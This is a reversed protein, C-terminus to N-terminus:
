VVNLHAPTLADAHSKQGGTLDQSSNVFLSPSPKFFGREEGPPAGGLEEPLFIPAGGGVLLDRDWERPGDKSIPWSQNLLGGGGDRLGTAFRIIAPQNNSSATSPTTEGYVVYPASSKREVPFVYPSDEHLKEEEDAISTDGTATGAQAYGEMDLRYSKVPPAMVYPKDSLVSDRKGVSSRDDTVYGGVISDGPPHSFPSGDIQVYGPDIFSTRKLGDDPPQHDQVYGPPHPKDTRMRVYGDVGVSGASSPSSGRQELGTSDPPPSDKISATTVSSDNSSSSSGLLEQSSTGSYHRGEDAATSSPLMSNSQDSIVGLPSRSISPTSPRRDFHSFSLKDGGFRSLHHDDALAVPFKIPADKILKFRRWFYWCVIGLGLVFISAVAVALAAVPAPTVFLSGCPVSSPNSWLGELMEDGTPSPNLARISLSYSMVLREGDEAQEPSQPLPQWNSSTRPVTQDESTDGEGEFLPEQLLQYGSIPGNPIPPEDWSLLFTSNGLFRTGPPEMSGPPEAETRFRLPESTPSCHHDHSVTCASAILTYETFPTLYEGMDIRLSSAEEGPVVRRHPLELDNLWIRWSRVIGNVQAGSPPTLVIAAKERSVEMGEETTLNRPESDETFQPPAPAISPAAEESRFVIPKSQQSVGARSLISVSAKYWTFPHPLSVTAGSVDGVTTDWGEGSGPLCSASPEPYVGRGSSIECVHVIFGTVFGARNSCELAWSLSVSTATVSRLIVDKLQSVVQNYEVTCGAWTLGSTATGENTSAIAFKLNQNPPLYLVYSTETGNVHVWSMSGNQCGHRAKALDSSDSLTCWFITAGDAQSSPETAWALEYKGPPDAYLISTFHKPTRDEENSRRHHYLQHSQLNPLLESHRPIRITSHSSSKGERNRSWIKVKYEQDQRLSSLFASSRGTDAMALVSDEQSGSPDVEIEYGFDAGSYEQRKLPNWYIRVDRRDFERIEEEVASPDVSPPRAPPIPLTTASVVVPESILDNVRPDDLSVASSRFRLSVTYMTFPFKLDKFILEFSGDIAASAPIWQERFEMSLDIHLIIFFVFTRYCCLGSDFCVILAPQSLTYSAEEEGASAYENSLVVLTEVPLQHAMLIRPISWTLNLESPSVAVLSVNKPPAPRVNQDVRLISDNTYNGLANKGTVFIVIENHAALYRPETQVTWVCCDWKGSNKTKKKEATQRKRMRIVDAKPCRGPCQSLRIRGNGVGIGYKIEYKTKVHNPPQFWECILREYNESTCSMNTPAVPPHGVSIQRFCVALDRDMTAVEDSEIQCFYNGSESPALHKCLKNSKTSHSLSSLFSTWKSRKSDKLAKIISTSLEAVRSSTPDRKLLQDKTVDIELTM